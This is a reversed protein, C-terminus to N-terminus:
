VVLALSDLKNAIQDQAGFSLKFFTHPFWANALMEVIMEQFSIPSLVEFNRRNLIDLLSLFFLYKYSNTTDAFIRTLVAVNVRESTPLSQGSMISVESAQSHPPSGLYLRVFEDAAGPHLGRLAEVLTVVTEATPDVQGHFWRHVIPRDVELATALSSQSIGHSELVQKLAQGAKGMGRIIASCQFIVTIM